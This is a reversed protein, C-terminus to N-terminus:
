PLLKQATHASYHPFYVSFVHSVVANRGLVRIKLNTYRKFLIGEYKESKIRNRQLESEFYFYIIM